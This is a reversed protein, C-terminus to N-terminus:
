KNSARSKRASKRTSRPPTQVGKTPTQSPTKSPTKGRTKRSKKVPTAPESKVASGYLIVQLALLVNVATSLSIGVLVVQDDVETLTTFLRAVCGALYAFVSIASLQGTSHTRANEYLQPVRAMVAIPTTLKQLNQLQSLPVLVPSALAYVSAAVAAVLVAALINQKAYHMVILAILLNQVFISVLEGYTSFPFEMRYNYALAILNAVVELICGVKSMGRSSHAVLLKLIQPIKVISGGLVIGIGMIKSIALRVCAANSTWDLDEVLQQYCTRGLLQEVPVKVAPPLSGTLKRAESLVSELMAAGSAVLKEAQDM